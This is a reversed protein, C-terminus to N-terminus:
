QRTEHSSDVLVIAGPLDDLTSAAGTRRRISENLLRRLRDTADSDGLTSLRDVTAGHAPPLAWILGMIEAELNGLVKRIGPQDLRIVGVDLDANVAAM